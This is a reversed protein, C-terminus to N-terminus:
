VAHVKRKPVVAEALVDGLTRIAKELTPADSCTFNLRMTSMGEGPETFFFKGPVYAVKREIARYYVQELDLEKPGEAWIFMGGEPKTWNFSSPFYKEMAKLMAEQRPAYLSVIKLVQKALYGGGIYEAALAQNLTSTHLDVGQKALVLWRDLPPPALFFGIRLGPAFVKSLTSIYVTNEPAFTYIPPLPEGRYRLMSYPDDEVLLARHQCIIQAIEMRRKVSLTKGTPNQFTPVLYVFKVNKKHLVEDLSEPVVGEEDTELRVYRPEYPNFAQIAGLYTPAEVAIGDGPSILIKAVGDLVGQSGTTVLIQKAEVRIGRDALFPVLAERLPPFGETLDYQFANSGYRRLVQSFLEEMIEMPFSEKAPIGGALSVMGPASVVKLIERIASAGMRSTRTALFPDFRM